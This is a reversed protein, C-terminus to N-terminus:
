SDGEVYHAVLNTALVRGYDLEKEAAFAEEGIEHQRSHCERCLPICSFAARGIHSRPLLAGTKASLLVRVHAADVPPHEGCGACRRTKVFRYWRQRVLAKM